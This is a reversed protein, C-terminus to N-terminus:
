LNSASLDAEGKEADGGEALACVGVAIVEEAGAFAPAAPARLLKRRDV